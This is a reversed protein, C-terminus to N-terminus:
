KVLALRTTVARGGVVARAFYAGSALPRGRADAGDWAVALTEGPALSGAYLAAVRRGRLDYVALSAPRPTGGGAPAALELRVRANFPNPWARLRAAPAPPADEGVGTVRRAYAVEEVTADVKGGDAAGARRLQVFRFNNPAPVDLRGTWPRWPEWEVFAFDDFWALGEGAGPGAAAAQMQCYLTGTPTTLDRWHWKWDGDGAVPTVIEAYSLLNATSRGSYFRATFTAGAANQTRLWGAASHRKAADCPLLRELGVTATAAGSARRIRLSRAGSRPGAPDYTEDPAGLSWLAAGEDEFGGHWLIERGWAVEWGTGDGQVDAVAALSGAGPLALPPTVAYGGSDFLDGRLTAVAVTSDVADRALFIRAAGAAPDTAVLAGMPRSYDAIRDMIERGLAGTAPRPVYHDIWAPAFRYGAIGDKTVDLTLVLTPMTEPYYLDFVFNGLSHAILRGAHVEFGQLVHPHHNIVVDAGLDLAQRRLERDTPTPETLFTVDPDGPAVASAELPPEVGAAGALGAPPATAYEDGSHLQVIAVDAVERVRAVAAALNHPLLHAFGPKSAGADLFPQYNWQRGTRNSLGVFGLRVGRRTVFAPRLAETEDGGAGTRPIGLSDLLALTQRLGPEGYDIIHNNGVDAVDVGAAVLGAVNEPRSRFVVSKTPHRTGRDTYSCEVNCVNVDAADGFIPRSPAFIAAVGQTEIIGGPSEFDRATMVDGVFNVTVPGEDEGPEVAVQCTDAGTLGDPDTVTLAVTYTHGARATFEHFPAPQDATAGDGFDWAWAHAASDPDGVESWFSVGVKWAGGEAKVARATVRGITVRPAVPLEGSVDRVDDFRVAGVAGSDDDNVYFLRDVTALAGHTARWDRGVPLRYTRWSGRPFAGQYLTWWQTGAPLDEGAFTYLLEHVGDGLGFAQMEGLSEVLVAVEWVTTDALARPAVAQVKWSNGSLRLASGTGDAGPASLAWGSPNLDQGPYSALAPPGSEFDEIVAAAAPAAVALTLALALAAARLPMTPM